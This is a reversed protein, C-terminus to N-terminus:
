NRKRRGKYEGGGVFGKTFVEMKVLSWKRDCAGGNWGVIERNEGGIVREGRRHKQQM